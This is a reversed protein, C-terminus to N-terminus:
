NQWRWGDPRRRRGDLEIRGCAWLLDAWADTTRPVEPM